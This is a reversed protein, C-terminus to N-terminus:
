GLIHHSFYTAFLNSLTTKNLKKNNNFNWKLFASNHTWLIRRPWYIRSFYRILLAGLAEIIEVRLNCMRRSQLTILLMKMTPCEVNINKLLAHELNRSKITFKDALSTILRFDNLASFNLNLFKTKMVPTSM